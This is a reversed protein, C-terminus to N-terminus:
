KKGTKERWKNSIAEMSAGNFDRNQLEEPIAKALHNILKEMTAENANPAKFQGLFRLDEKREKFVYIKKSNRISAFLFGNKEIEIVNM